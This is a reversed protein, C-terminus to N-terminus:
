GWPMFPFRWPDFGLMWFLFSVPSPLFPWANRQGIYYQPVFFNLLVVIMLVEALRTDLVRRKALLDVAYLVLPFAHGVHRSIDHSFFLQGVGAAFMLAFVSFTAVIEGRKTLYLACLPIFWFLKFAEFIGIGAYPFVLEWMTKVLSLYFGPALQANQLPWFKRMLFMPVVSLAALGVDFMFRSVGRWSLLSKAYYRTRLLVLWPISFLTAEHNLCSLALPVVWVLKSRRLAFCWFLLLHTLIDTYGQFHLLFLVPGSFAMTSSAIFAILHTHGERRFHTYISGLFVVTVILPFYIFAKGRLHLYHAILPALIRHRFPSDDMRLPDNSIAAFGTGNNVCELAPTVYIAAILLLFIGVVLGTLAQGTYRECFELVNSLKPMWLFWEFKEKANSGASASKALVSEASVQDCNVKAGKQKALNM